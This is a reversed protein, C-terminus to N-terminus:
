HSFAAPMLCTPSEPHAQGKGLCTEKGCGQREKGGANGALKSGLKQPISLSFLMMFM